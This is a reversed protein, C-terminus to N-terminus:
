KSVAQLLAAITHTFEKRIEHPSKGEELADLLEKGEMKVIGALDGKELHKKWTSPPNEMIDTADELVGELPKALTKTAASGKRMIHDHMERMEHMMMRMEKRVDPAVDFGIQRAEPSDEEHMRRREEPEEEWHSRVRRRMEREADKRGDDYGDSYAARRRRMDMDDDGMPAHVPNHQTDDKGRQEGDRSMIMRFM